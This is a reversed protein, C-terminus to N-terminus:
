PTELYTDDPDFGVIEGDWYQFEPDMAHGANTATWDTMAGPTDLQTGAHPADLHHEPDYGMWITLAKSGALACNLGSSRMTLLECPPLTKPVPIDEVKRGSWALALPSLAFTDHQGASWQVSAQGDAALGLHLVPVDNEMGWSWLLHRTPVNDVCDIVLTAGDLVDNLNEEDLRVPFLETRVEVQSHILGDLAFPKDRRKGELADLGYWQNVLNREEVVDGDVLRFTLGYSPIQLGILRKCVEQMWLSGLFGCGVLVITQNM